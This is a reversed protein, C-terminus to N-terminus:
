PLSILKAANIVKYAIEDMASVQKMMDQVEAQSKRLKEVYEM